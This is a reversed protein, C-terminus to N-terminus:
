DPPTLRIRLACPGAARRALWGGAAGSALKLGHAVYYTLPVPPANSDFMHHVAVLFLYIAAAFAGMLVGHLIPRALPRCLKWAVPVFVIFSGILAFMTLASEPINVMRMPIVAVILITEALFGGVLVPRWHLSSANM